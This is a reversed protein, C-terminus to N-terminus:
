TTTRTKHGQPPNISIRVGYAKRANAEMEELTFLRATGVEYEKTRRDMEALFVSDTWIDKEITQV